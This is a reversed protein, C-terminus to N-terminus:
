FFSWFGNWRGMTAASNEKVVAAHPLYYSLIDNSQFEEQSIEEM